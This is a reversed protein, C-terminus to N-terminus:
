CNGLLCRTLFDPQGGTVQEFPIQVRQLPCDNVRGCDSRLELRGELYFWNNGALQARTREDDAVRMEVQVAESLFKRTFYIRKLRDVTQSDRESLDCTSFTILLKLSRYGFFNQTEEELISFHPSCLSVGPTFFHLHGISIVLQKRCSM